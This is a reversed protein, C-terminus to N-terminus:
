GHCALDAPPLLLSIREVAESFDEQGGPLGALGAYLVGGREAQGALDARFVLVGTGMVAEGAAVLGHKVGALGARVPLLGEGQVGVEADRFSVLNACFDAAKLYFVSPPPLM